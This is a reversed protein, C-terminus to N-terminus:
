GDTTCTNINHVYREDADCITFSGEIGVLGAHWRLFMACLAHFTGIKIQGTTEKGVLKTLRERMENAAKNTFTVACISFPLIHHHTILHAIRCTLVKTKGSGPGALIQLPIEPPHRVATSISTTFLHVGIFVTILSRETTCRQSKALLRFADHIKGLLTDRRQHHAEVCRM